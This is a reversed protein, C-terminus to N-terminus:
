GASGVPRGARRLARGARLRDDRRADVRRRRRARTGTRGRGGAGRRGGGGVTRAGEGPRRGPCLYTRPAPRPVRIWGDRVCVHDATQWVGLPYMMLVSCTSATTTPDPNPPETDAKRSAWAPRETTSSSRPRGYGGPLKGRVGRSSPSANQSGLSFRYPSNSTHRNEPNSESTDLPRPPPESM